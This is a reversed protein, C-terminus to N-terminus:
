VVGRPNDSDMLEHHSFERERERCKSCDDHYDINVYHSKGCGCEVLLTKNKIQDRLEEYERKWNITM